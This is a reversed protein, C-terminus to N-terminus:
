SGVGWEGNGRLLAAAFPCGHLDISVRADSINHWVRAEKPLLTCTWINCIRPSKASGVVQIYGYNNKLGMFENDIAPFDVYIEPETPYGEKISANNMNLRWEYIRAVLVWCYCAM